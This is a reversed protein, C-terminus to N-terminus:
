GEQTAGYKRDRAADTSRKFIAMYMAQPIDEVGGAAYVRRLTSCYSNSLIHVRSPCTDPCFRTAFMLMRILSFQACLLKPHPGASGICASQGAEQSQRHGSNFLFTINRVLSILDRAITRWSSSLILIPYTSKESNKLFDINCETRFIPKIHHNIVHFILYM